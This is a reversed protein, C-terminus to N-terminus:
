LFLLNLNASRRTRAAALDRILALSDHYAQERRGTWRRHAPCHAARLNTV